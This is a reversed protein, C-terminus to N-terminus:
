LWRSIAAGFGSSTSSALRLTSRSLTRSQYDLVMGTSRKGLRQSHPHREPKRLTRDSCSKGRLQDPKGFLAYGNGSAPADRM